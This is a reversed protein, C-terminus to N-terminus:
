AEKPIYYTDDGCFVIRSGAPIKRLMYHVNYADPYPSIMGMMSLMFLISHLAINETPIIQFLILPILGLIYPLLSMLAFRKRSLPYSALAVCAFQRVIGINVTAGGPYVVAHLLEHLLLYASSLVLGIICWPMSILNTHAVACKFIMSIMCILFSPLAFPAAKLMMEGMTKPIDTKVANDPLPCSQYRAIDKQDIIGIWKIKPM